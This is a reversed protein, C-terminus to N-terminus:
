HEVRAGGFSGPFAVGDNTQRPDDHFRNTRRAIDELLAAINARGLRWMTM